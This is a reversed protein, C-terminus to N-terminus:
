RYSISQQIDLYGNINTYTIKEGLNVNDVRSPTRHVRHLSRVHGAARHHRRDCNDQGGGPVLYGGGEGTVGAGATRM